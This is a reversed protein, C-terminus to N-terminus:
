LDPEFVFQERRDHAPVQKQDYGEFQQSARLMEVGGGKKKAKVYAEFHPERPIDYIEIDGKM